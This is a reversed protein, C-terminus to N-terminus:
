VGPKAAASEARHSRPRNYPPAPFNLSVVTRPKREEKLKGAGGLGESKPKMARCQRQAALISVLFSLDFNHESDSTLGGLTRETGTQGFVPQAAFAGSVGAYFRNSLNPMPLRDVIRDANELDCGQAERHGNAYHYTFEGKFSM